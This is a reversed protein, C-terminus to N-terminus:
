QGQLEAPAGCERAPAALYQYSAYFQPQQAEPLSKMYPMYLCGALEKHMLHVKCRIILCNVVNCPQQQQRGCRVFVKRGVHCTFVRRCAWMQVASCQAGQKSMTCTVCLVCCFLAAPCIATHGVIDHRVTVVHEISTFATVQILVGWGHSATRHTVHACLRFTFTVHTMPAQNYQHQPFGNYYPAFLHDVYYYCDALNHTQHQSFIVTLM